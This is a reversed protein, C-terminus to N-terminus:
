RGLNELILSELKQQLTKESEDFTVKVALDGLKFLYPNKVQTIYSLLKEQKSKYNNIKVTSIDTLANKNCDKISINKLQEANLSMIDMKNGIAGKKIGTNFKLSKFFLFYAPNSGSM